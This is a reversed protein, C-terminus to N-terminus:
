RALRAQQRRRLIQMVLGALLILLPIAIGPIM